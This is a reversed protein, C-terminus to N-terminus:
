GRWRRYLVRQGCRSQRRWPCPWISSSLLVLSLPDVADVDDMFFTDVEYNSVSVDPLPKGRNGVDGPAIAINWDVGAAIFNVTVYLCFHRSSSSLWRCHWQVTLYPWLQNKTVSITKSTSCYDIDVYRSQELHVRPNVCVRTYLTSFSVCTSMVSRIGM